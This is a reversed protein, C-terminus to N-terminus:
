LDNEIKIFYNGSVINVVQPQDGKSIMTGEILEERNKYLYAEQSKVVLNVGQETIEYATSNYFSVEPKEEYEVMVVEEEKEYFIVLVSCVLLFYIFKNLGM